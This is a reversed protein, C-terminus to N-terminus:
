YYKLGKKTAAYLSLRCNVSGCSIFKTDVVFIGFAFKALVDDGTEVYKTIFRCQIVAFKLNSTKFTIETEEFYRLLALGNYSIQKTAIM